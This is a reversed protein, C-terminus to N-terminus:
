RSHVQVTRNQEIHQPVLTNTNHKWYKSFQIKNISNETLKSVFDCLKLIVFVRYIKTSTWFKVNVFNLVITFIFLRLTQAYKSADLDKLNSKCHYELYNNYVRVFSKQEILKSFLTM